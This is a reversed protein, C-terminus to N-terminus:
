AEGALKENSRNRPYVETIRIAFHGDVVVVEGCALAIGQAIIEVPQDIERELELVNGKGLQLLKEISVQTRGLEASVMIKIDAFRNIQQKVSSKGSDELEQFEPSNVEIESDIDLQTSAAEAETKADVSTAPDETKLEQTEPQDAM